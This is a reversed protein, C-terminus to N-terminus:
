DTGSLSGLTIKGMEVTFLRPAVLKAGILGTTREPRADTLFMQGEYGSLLELLNGIRDDDLKDFLDDLLLLPAFGKAERMVRAQALKLSVVFSKVQGQSGLKRLEGPALLFRFDDRHIGFATRGTALDRGRTKSFGEFFSDDAVGSIYHIDTEEYDPVVRKCYEHFVPKFVTVFEKRREYIKTGFLSLRDDYTELLVLDQRVGQLWSKLLSNRLKLLSNYQMLNQLYESDLQCLIGDFFRRRSEGGERVLDIDEPAMLVVPYKGIHDSIRLYDIGDERFTKKGTNTVSSIVEHVQNQRHYSGKVLYFLDSHRICAADGSVFASKTLSLTYIADLINTKGSGNLGTLLNIGPGFEITQEAYNKFSLLELRLLQM